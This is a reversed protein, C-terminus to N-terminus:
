IKNNNMAIIGIIINCNIKSKIVKVCEDITAGTTYVDDILLLTKNELISKLNKDVLDFIGKINEKREEIGLSSQNVNNKNKFLM